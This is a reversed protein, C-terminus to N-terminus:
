RWFARIAAIGQAGHARATPVDAEGLGGLAYAPIACAAALEAFRRWGLPAADPHSPTAGVPAITVFDAGIRVARGIEVPDHCSVGLWRGRSVPRADLRAAARASLHVGDLGSEEVLDPASNVLLLTGRRAAIAHADSAVAAIQARTWTPQRFQILRIGADCAREIGGLLAGREGIPLPPTILYRQPLRLATVIPADAPPMPLTSLAAIEVWRLPQDERAHVTGAYADVTWADLVIRKEPYSWPVSILRTASRVEIGIEEALERKLAEFRSEGPDIKGGPFEWHGALHKGPPREALLVRGAADRIVGAVVHIPSETM